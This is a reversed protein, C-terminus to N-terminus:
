FKSLNWLCRPIKIKTMNKKSEIAKIEISNTDAKM